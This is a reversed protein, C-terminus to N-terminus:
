KEVNKLEATLESIEKKIEGIEGNVENWVESYQENNKLLKDKEEQLLASLKGKLEEIHQKIENALETDNIQSGIGEKIEQYVEQVKSKKNEKEIKENEIESNIGQFINKISKITGNEKIKGIISDTNLFTTIFLATILIGIIIGIINTKTKKSKPPEINKENNDINKEPENILDNLGVEFFKAIEMLKNADPCTEGLEWKSITEGTVNLEKGLKEQSLGKKMRLKILQEKFSM